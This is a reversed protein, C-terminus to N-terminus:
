FEFAPSVHLSSVHVFNYKFSQNSLSHYKQVIVSDPRNQFRSDLFLSEFLWKRHWNSFTDTWFDMAPSQVTVELWITLHWILSLLSSMYKCPFNYVLCYTCAALLIISNQVTVEFWLTLLYQVDASRNKRIFFM